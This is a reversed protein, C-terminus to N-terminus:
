LDYLDYEVVVEYGDGSPKDGEMYFLDCWRTGRPVDSWRPYRAALRAWTTECEEPASNVHIVSLGEDLRLDLTWTGAGPIRWARGGYEVVCEGLTAFTPSVHRRANEVVQDTGGGGAIVYRKHAGRKWPDCTVTFKIERYNLRSFYTECEWRGHYTYGPDVSLTFDASRGHLMDCMETKTREFDRGRRVYFVHEMVRDDYAADDTLAETLDLTGDAAPLTVRRQRVPPPGLTSDNTWILDFRECLDVGEVVITPLPM